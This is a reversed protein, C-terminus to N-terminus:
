FTKELEKMCTEGVVRNPVSAGPMTAWGTQMLMENRKYSVAEKLAAIKKTADPDRKSQEMCIPVLAAVVQQRAMDDALIKSKGSTMWGGWGFGVVAVSLAGGLAGVLVPKFWKNDSM